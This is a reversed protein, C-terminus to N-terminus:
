GGASSRARDQAQVAPRRGAADAPRAAAAARRLRKRASTSRAASCSPASGARSRSRRPSGRACCRSCGRCSSWSRRACRRSTPPSSRWGRPMISRGAWGSRSSRGAPISMPTASRCSRCSCRTTGASIRRSSRHLLGRRQAPDRRPAADGRAARRRHRQHLHHLGPRRARVDGRGRRRRSTPPIRRRDARALRPLEIARSACRADGRHRDRDARQNSRLVAPLLMKPSSRRDVRDGRARGFERPHAPSRARHQHHLDAGDRLGRGHDRPRSICWEPRNEAVLM